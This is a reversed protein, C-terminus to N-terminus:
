SDQVKDRGDVAIRELAAELDLRGQPLRSSLYLNSAVSVSCRGAEKPVYASIVKNAGKHLRIGGLPLSWGLM